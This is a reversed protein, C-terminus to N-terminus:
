SWSSQYAGYPSRFSPTGKKFLIKLFSLDKVQLLQFIMLLVLCYRSFDNNFYLFAKFSVRVDKSKKLLSPRLNQITIEPIQVQVGQGILDIVTIKPLSVLVANDGISLGEITTLQPEIHIKGLMSSFENGSFQFNKGSLFGDFFGNKLCRNQM